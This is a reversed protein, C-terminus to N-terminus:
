QPPVTGDDADTGDANTEEDTGEEIDSAETDVETGTESGDEDGNTGNGDTTDDTTVTDSADGDLTHDDGEFTTDGDPAPLEDVSSVDLYDPDFSLATVDDLGPGDLDVEGETPDYLDGAALPAYRELIPTGGILRATPWVANIASYGLSSDFSVGDQAALGRNLHAALLQARKRNSTLADPDTELANMHAVLGDDEDPRPQFAAALGVSEATEFSGQSAVIRHRPYVGTTEHYSKLGSLVGEVTARLEDPDAVVGLELGQVPVDDRTAGDKTGTPYVWDDDFEPTYQLYPPLTSRGFRDFQYTSAETDDRTETDDDTTATGDSRDADTEDGHAEADREAAPKEDDTRRDAEDVESEAHRGNADEMEDAADQADDHPGNDDSM